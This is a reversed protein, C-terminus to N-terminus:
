KIYHVIVYKTHHVYIHIKKKDGCLKIFFIYCNEHTKPKKLLIDNVVIRQEYHLKRMQLYFQEYLIYGNTQKFLSFVNTDNKLYKYKNLVHNEYALDYKGIENVGIVLSNKNPDNAHFTPNFKCINKQCRPIQKL